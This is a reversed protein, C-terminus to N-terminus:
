EKVMSRISAACPTVTCWIAKPFTLWNRTTPRTNSIFKYPTLPTLPEANQTVNFIEPKQLSRAFELFGADDMPAQDDMYGGLTVTWRDGEQTLLAGFHFDPLCAGM